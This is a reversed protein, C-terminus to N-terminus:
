NMFDDDLLVSLALSSRVKGSEKDQDGATPERM